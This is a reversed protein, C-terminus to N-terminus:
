VGIELLKVYSIVCVWAALLVFNSLRAGESKLPFILAIHPPNSLYTTLAPLLPPPTPLVGTRKLTGINRWLVPATTNM